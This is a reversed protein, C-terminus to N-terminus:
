LVYKHAFINLLFHKVEISLQILLNIAITILMWFM